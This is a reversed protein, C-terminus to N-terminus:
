MNDREFFAELAGFPITDINGGRSYVIIYNPKLDIEYDVEYEITREYPKTPEEEGFLFVKFILTGVFISFAIVGIKEM